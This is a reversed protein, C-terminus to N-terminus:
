IFAHPVGQSTLPPPFIFNSSRLMTQMIKARILRCTRSEEWGKAKVKARKNSIIARKIQGGGTGDCGMMSCSLSQREERQQERISAMM